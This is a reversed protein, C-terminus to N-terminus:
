SPFSDSLRMFAAASFRPTQRVERELGRVGSSTFVNSWMMPMTPAACADKM